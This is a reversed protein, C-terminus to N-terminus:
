VKCKERNRERDREQLPATTNHCAAPSAHDPLQLILVLKFNRQLTDVNCASSPQMGQTREVKGHVSRFCTCDFQMRPPPKTDPYDALKLVLEHMFLPSSTQSTALQVSRM